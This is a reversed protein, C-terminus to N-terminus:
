LLRTAWRSSGVVREHGALDGELVHRGHYQEGVSEDGVTEPATACVRHLSYGAMTGGITSSAGPLLALEHGARSWRRTRSQANGALLTELM